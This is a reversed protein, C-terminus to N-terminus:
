LRSKLEVLDKTYKKVKEFMGREVNQIGAGHIILNRLRNLAFMEDVDPADLYQRYKLEKLMEVVSLQKEGKPVSFLPLARLAKEMEIYEMLYDKAAVDGKRELQSLKNVTKTFFDPSAVTIIFWLSYVLTGVNILLAVGALAQYISIEGIVSFTLGEQLPNLMLFALDLVISFGSLWFLRKMNVHIQKKMALSIEVRTEDLEVQKDIAGIIFAVGAFILGVLAALAQPSTSFLWDLANRDMANCIKEQRFDNNGENFPM